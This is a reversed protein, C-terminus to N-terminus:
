IFGQTCMVMVVKRDMWASACINDAPFGKRATGIGYIGLIELDCILAKSTFNDFFVRHWKCQFDKTLDKVVRAGLNKEVTNGKKGTYVELRSFYGNTSDGMVWVKIGRKVPKKPMYQKLSSRGQFKIMAEDVALNRGPTYIASFRGQLYHYVPDQNWYHKIAPLHNIGMLISFGIYAEYDKTTIKEWQAFKEASMVQEAYKNTEEVVM